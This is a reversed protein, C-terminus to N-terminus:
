ELEMITVLKMYVKMGITPKFIDERGVKANFNGLLISMHYKPFKDFVCELERYFNNKVEDIKDEIPAYVNLVIVHCWCGRLIIYSIRDSVLEVRKVASIIRKHLLFEIGLEHNGNGKRYFFINHEQQNLEVARGNPSRYGVLDVKYKSLEKSITV